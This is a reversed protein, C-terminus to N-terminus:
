IEQLQRKRYFNFFFSVKRRLFTDPIELVRARKIRALNRKEIKANTNLLFVWRILPIAFFTGAYIKLLPLARATFLIFGSLEISTSKLMSDLVIVGFLNLGGLGAVLARELIGTESFQWKREKFSKDVKGVSDAWGKGAYEKRGSRQSSGTKQLSPFRYLINGEEDVEPRGDFQLLVPLIYSEDNLSEESSPIDLYPALEEAAIVGRNSAIYQGILKWREEEIGMNPDGDGFVFSFISEIFSMRNGNTATQRRQNYYSDWLWALDSLNISSDFFRGSRKGHNDENSKSSLLIAIIATYVIVISAILATGFSVRILYEAASKSKKLVPEIRLRFSKSALKSRYDRPFVYLVDGEDSVPDSSPDTTPSVVMVKMLKLMKKLSSSLGILSSALNDLKEGTEEEDDDEEEKEDDEYEGRVISWSQLGIGKKKKMELFGSTDAALAQLARQAEDLKLGAKSAVDGVTVRGGCKDVADMARKRVGSPLKETEVERRYKIGAPFEVTARIVPPYHQSNAYVNTLKISTLTLNPFKYHHISPKFFITKYLKRHHTTKSTITFCTTAISAM